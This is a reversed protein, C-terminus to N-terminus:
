PGLSSATCSPKKSSSAKSQCFSLSPEIWELPWIIPWVGLDLSALPHLFPSLALGPGQLAPSGSSRPERPVPSLRAPSQTHKHSLHPPLPQPYAHPPHARPTRVEARRLCQMLSHSRPSRAETETDLQSRPATRPNESKDQNAARLPQWHCCKQHSKWCGCPVSLPGWLHTGPLSGMGSFGVAGQLHGTTEQRTQLSTFMWFSVPAPPCLVGHVLATFGPKRTAPKWCHVSVAEVGWLPVRGQSSCPHSPCVPLILAPAGLQPPSLQSLSGRLLGLSGKSPALSRDAPASSPRSTGRGCPRQM